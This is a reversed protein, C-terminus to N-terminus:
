PRFIAGDALYNGGSVGGWIIAEKGTWIVVARSRAAPEGTSDM